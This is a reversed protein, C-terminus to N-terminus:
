VMRILAALVLRAEVSNADLIDAQLTGATLRDVHIDSDRLVSSAPSFEPVDRLTQLSHVRLQRVQIIDAIVHSAHITQAQIREARVEADAGEDHAAANARLDREIFSRLEADVRPDFDATTVEPERFLISNSRVFEDDYRSGQRSDQANERPDDDSMAELLERSFLRGAGDEAGDTEADERADDHADAQAYRRTDAHAGDAERADMRTEHGDASEHDHDNADNQCVGPVRRAADPAIDPHSPTRTAKPAGFLEFQRSPTPEASPVDDRVIQNLDDEEWEEGSAQTRWLVNEIARLRTDGFAPIRQLVDNSYAIRLDDMSRISKDFFMRRAMTEGIGPIECLDCFFPDYDKQLTAIMAIDGTRVLEDFIKIFKPGFGAFLQRVPTRAVVADADEKWDAVLEMAKRIALALNNSKKQLSLLTHLRRLKQIIQTNTM